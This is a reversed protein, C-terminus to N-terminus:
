RRPAALAVPLSPSGSDPRDTTLTSTANTYAESIVPIATREPPQTTQHAYNGAPLEPRIDKIGIEEYLQQLLDRDVGERVLDPYRIGHPALSLLAGKALERMQSPSKGYVQPTAEDRADSQDIAFDPTTM